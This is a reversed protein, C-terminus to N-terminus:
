KKWEAVADKYRKNIESKLKTREEKNEELTKNFDERLQKLDNVINNVIDQYLPKNNSRYFHKFIVDKVIYKNHTMDNYKSWIDVCLDYVTKCEKFYKDLIVKQENTFTIMYKHSRLLTGGNNKEVLHNFTVLKSAGNDFHHFDSLVNKFKDDPPKSKIDEPFPVIGQFQTVNRDFWNCLLNHM